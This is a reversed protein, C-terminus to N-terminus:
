RRDRAAGATSHRPTEVEGESSEAGAGKAHFEYVEYIAFRRPEHQHNLKVRYSQENTLEYRASMETMWAGFKEEDRVEGELSCAVCRLPRDASLDALSVGRPGLRHVPSYTRQYCVYDEPVNASVFHKGLDTHVCVVEGESALEKWFWRVFGRHEFDVLRKYPKAMDKAMTALAIVFLGGVAVQFVRRRVDAKAIGALLSAVGLGITLCALSGYWQSLRAGGYPYRRLAAAAMALALPAVVMVMLTRDQRRALVVVGVIFCSLSLISGFRDDGVPYAMFEGAHISALWAVLALPRWPPFGDAWYQHMFEHTAAYQAATISKLMALFVIAVLANYLAFAGWAQRDRSRWVPLALALAVGGAVFITPNSFAIAVPGAAALAWLWRRKEPDQLWRVALWVLVMAATLDSGYPKCEAAHRVPYYSVALVGVGLVMPVKGLVRGALDRFVFLGAISTVIAFLRLSWESFGFLKIATLEAAVYGVPAVQQLTLPKLLDGYGRDLWNQILMLEDGWFPFNLLYRGLRLTVGVAVFVWALTDLRRQWAEDQGLPAVDFYLHPGATRASAAPTVAKITNNM